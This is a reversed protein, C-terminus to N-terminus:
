SEEGIPTKESLKGTTKKNYGLSSLKVSGRRKKRSKEVFINTKGVLVILKVCYGIPKRIALGVHEKSKRQFFFLLIPAFLSQTRSWSLHYLIFSLRLQRKNKM